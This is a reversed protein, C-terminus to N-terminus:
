KEMYRIAAETRTRVHLRQFINKIHDHVTWIGIGMAQAIEKDVYGKSLLELVERERPTLSAIAANDQNSPLQLLDHFYYKVRLLIDEIRLDSRNLAKMLPELLRDPPVRKVLYGAAGGPTSVFMTDGDAHVSYTAAPVGPHIPAITGAADFGGPGALKRNLLVIQPKQLAFMQSLHEPSRCPVGVFGAQHDVSWCLAHRIGDDPEVIVVRRRNPHRAPMEGPATQDSNGVLTHITTYTWLVPNTCWEFSVILERSFERCVDSWGREVVMAQIKCAKAAAADPDSTGLPFFYGVQADNIYAALDHDSQGSGPFRYRRVVLRGKWYRKDTKSIEQDGPTQCHGPFAAALEGGSKTRTFADYIESRDQTPKM